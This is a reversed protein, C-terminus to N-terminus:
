EIPLKMQENSEILADTIKKHISESIEDMEVKGSMLAIGIMTNLRALQEYTFRM